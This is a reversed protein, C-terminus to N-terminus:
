REPRTSVGVPRHMAAGALAVLWGLTRADIGDFASSSLADMTLVGHLEDEVRLPAGFCAHVRSLATPDAALLGDSPDPLASDIPFLVPVPSEAIHDLRPHAGREFRRGDTDPTLGRTAVPV